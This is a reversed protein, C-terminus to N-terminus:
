KASLIASLVAHVNSPESPGEMDSVDTCEGNASNDTDTWVDRTSLQEEHANGVSDTSGYPPTFNSVDGELLLGRCNKFM